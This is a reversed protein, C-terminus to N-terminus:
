FCKVYSKKRLDHKHPGGFRCNLVAPDIRLCGTYSILFEGTDAPPTPTEERAIALKNVDFETSHQNQQNVDVDLEMQEKGRDAFASYIEDSAMDSAVGEALAKASAISPSLLVDDVTDVNTEPGLDDDDDFESSVSRKKEKPIDFYDNEPLKEAGNQKFGESLNLLFGEKQSLIDNTGNSNAFPNNAANANDLGADMTAAGNRNAWHAEAAIKSPERLFVVIVSINDLSGSEKASQVLRESISDTADTVVCLVIILQIGFLM